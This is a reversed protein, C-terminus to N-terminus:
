TTGPPTQEKRNSSSIRERKNSTRPDTETVSRERAAYM